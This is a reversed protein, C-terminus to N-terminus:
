WSFTPHTSCSPESLVSMCENGRPESFFLFHQFNKIFDVSTDTETESYVQRKKKDKM